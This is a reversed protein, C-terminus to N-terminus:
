HQLGLPHAYSAAEGYGYLSAGFPADSTLRHSGPNVAVYSVEYQTGVSSWPGVAVGDLLVPGALLPRILQVTQWAYSTPATFAYSHAWRDPALLQVMAPDGLGLPQGGELYQVGLIPHNASIEYHQGVEGVWAFWEGRGLHVPTGSPPPHISVLTDQEGALVRYHFHEDGRIPAHVALTQTSWLMQPLMQESLHDCHDIAAPVNVCEAAAIVVVPESSDVQTGTLDGSGEAQVQLVEFQGLTAHGVQGPVIAPVNVGPSTPATPRFTVETNAALAVVMFYSPHSGDADGYSAVLHRKGLNHRPLLLSADNSGDAQGPGHLSATVPVNSRIRYLGGKRQLSQGDIVETNLAITTHGGPEVITTPLPVATQTGVPVFALELTAQHLPSPNTIIAVDDVNADFNDLPLAFFECGEASGQASAQACVDECWNDACAHIPGCPHPAGYGTGADNCVAMHEPDLCITSGPECAPVCAGESCIQGDPCDVPDFTICNDSCVEIQPGDCAGSLEGPTCSCGISEEGTSSGTSTPWSTPDVSPDVSPDGTPLGSTSTTPDGDSPDGTSSSESSQASDSGPMDPSSEPVCALALCAGAVYALSRRIVM